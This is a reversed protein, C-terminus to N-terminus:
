IRDEGEATLGRVSLDRLRLEVQPWLADARDSLIRRCKAIEAERARRNEDAIRALDDLNYVFVNQVRAAAAEVNRPLSLDILLLPRAPRKKMAAAVLGAAVIPEPANTACVVVDFEALRNERQEFPLARGGLAAALEMARDSRRSAVTLMGAGRNQFARATKEGIEGAGLLLVQTTALDGFISRALEVAVNAVSVKGLTIATQTRVQKAAQFVKQFVRNLVPGAAHQAQAAAYAEKVQGFIETEGLMQSDLGAAVELLHQLAARGQLELRFREFEAVAFQQQRCFADQIREAAAPHTAVGYFEIRNCTNLLALERVEPLAILEHHLRGASEGPLALKERVAIPALHHTAGIVFFAGNM